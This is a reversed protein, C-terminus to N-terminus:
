TQKAKKRLTQGLRTFAGALQRRTGKQTLLDEMK